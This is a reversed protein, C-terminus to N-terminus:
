GKRTYQVNEPPVGWDGDFPISATCKRFEESIQPYKVRCEELRKGRNFTDTGPETAIYNQMELSIENRGAAANGRESSTDVVPNCGCVGLSALVAILNQLVNM